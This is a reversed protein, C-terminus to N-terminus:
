PIQDGAMAPRALVLLTLATLVLGVKLYNQRMKM